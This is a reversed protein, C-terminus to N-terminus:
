ERASSEEREWTERAPIPRPYCSSTEIVGLRTGHLTLRNDTGSAQTRKRGTVAARSHLCSREEAAFNGGNQAERFFILEAVGVTM